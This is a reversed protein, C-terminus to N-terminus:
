RDVLRSTIEKPVAVTVKYVLLTDNSPLRM